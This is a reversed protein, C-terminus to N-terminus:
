NKENEEKISGMTESRAALGSTVDDNFSPSPSVGNAAAAARERAPAGEEFTQSAKMLLASCLPKSFREADDLPSQGFRDVPLPNENWKSLIYELVNHDGECAAVHLVTRDDYDRAHVDLGLLLYRKIASIDGTKAAYMFRTTHEQDQEEVLRRPDLKRCDSYVLSDYNHFNFTSIFHEAFKVGRVTNRQYHSIFRKFVTELSDLRPSYLCIGMVNPVVIILDGSVGSKAPLGVRFAFQGSWDYMGCSYMLSLTDRCARNNIVREGNMPNVGGNALTAAMVALNDSNTEISCLQFYLDLTDQLNTNPPFCKHERMYYSLAYNRDATERESLFVSNNFGINGTSSGFKKFQQLAYDFRDSLTAHRMVLSAVIIAGANILPNHPKKDHDLCIDNFLRGSPEQGVYSHLEDAGLESHVMAYTFPKSVSQLCFPQLADGFSKRQGDVTCISMAWYGPDTRALQPIYTAVSGAHAPRVQEFIEEMTKCFATWDPIVLQQKLAKAIVGISSGVCEKFTEKDLYFNQSEQLSGGDLKELDRVREFVKALRPDDRRIGSEFLQKFFKPIYIKNTKEDKYLDFVLEQFHTRSRSPENSLTRSVCCGNPITNERWLLHTGGVAATSTSPRLSHLRHLGRLQLM